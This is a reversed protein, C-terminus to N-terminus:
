SVLRHAEVPAAQHVAPEGERRAFRSLDLLEAEPLRTFGVGPLYGAALERVALEGNLGALPHQHRAEDLRVLVGLPDMGTTGRANNVVTVYERQDHQTERTQKPALIYKAILAYHAHSLDRQANYLQLYALLWPHRRTLGALATSDLGTFGARTCGLHAFLKAEVSPLALAAHLEAAQDAFLVSCVEQAHVRYGPFGEGPELLNDFLMIDRALSAPDNAASPPKLAQGASWPCQYQRFVDLFFDSDFTKRKMFDLMRAKMAWMLHAATLAAEQAALSDLATVPDQLLHLYRNAAEQLAVTQKGLTFFNVETCNDSFTLFRADAFAARVRHIVAGTRPHRVEVDPGNLEVLTMLTDRHPHGVRDALAGFYALFPVTQRVRLAALGQGPTITTAREAFSTVATGLEQKVFQQQAHREVSSGAFSLLVLLQLTQERNVAAAPPAHDLVRSNLLAAMETYALNGSFAQHNLHPLHELLWARMAAIQVTPDEELVGMHSAYPTFGLM